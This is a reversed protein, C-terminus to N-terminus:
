AAVGKMPRMSRIRWGPRVLDPHSRNLYRLASDPRKVRGDIEVMRYDKPRDVPHLLGRNPDSVMEIDVAWMM